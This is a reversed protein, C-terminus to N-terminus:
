KSIMLKASKSEDGTRIRLIYSGTSLGAASYSYERDSIKRGCCIDKIKKGSLDHVSVAPATELDGSFEIVFIEESPNPYIKIEEKVEDDAVSVPSESVKWVHLIIHGDNHYDYELLYLYGNANDFSLAVIEQEDGYFIDKDPRLAAYAQPEYPEALAKAVDALDDPDYLIFQPQRNHSRWGKGDPDTEDFNPHPIDAVVWDLKMREGYYGYWNDGKAKNGAFIVASQRGANIWEAARWRDDHNYDNISNPFHYNDSEEVPGYELLTSIPLIANPPPPDAYNLPQFAYLTPGLGSLGGDRERGCLLSRGNLHEDAWADPVKFLYDNAGAAIPHDDINGLYWAGRKLSGALDNALCCSISAEKEGGVNYHIAWSSYLYRESGNNMCCLGARWLDVYAWSEINDPRINAFSQILEAENLEEYEANSLPPPINLEGVFGFEPQNLNMTFISGPFGDPDGGTGAGDGLPDYAMAESGYAFDEPLRVAGLYQFNEPSILDDDGQYPQTRGIITSSHNSENMCRDRAIVSFEYDTDPELFVVTYTNERSYGEIEGNMYILYDATGCDDAPVNWDLKIKSDSVPNATLGDPPHPPQIDANTELEIKDCILYPKYFNDNWEIHININVLSYTGDTKHIGHNEINFATKSSSHPQIESFTNRYDDACRMTYWNGGSGDEDPDDADTFSIRNTFRIVEDSNNYWTVVIREGRSFKRSTGRVGMFDTFENINSNLLVGGPGASSYEMDASLLLENWGSLGFQNAAPNPGFDVLVMPQSQLISSFLVFAIMFVSLKFIFKM